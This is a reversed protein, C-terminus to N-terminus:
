VQVTASSTAQSEVHMTEIIYTEFTSDVTLSHTIQVHTLHNHPASNDEEDEIVSAAVGSFRVFDKKLDTSVVFQGDNDKVQVLIGSGDADEDGFLVDFSAGWTCIDPPLAFVTAGHGANMNPLQRYLGKQIMPFCIVQCKTPM